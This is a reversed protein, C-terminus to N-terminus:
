GAPAAITWDYTGYRVRLRDRRERLWAADDAPLREIVFELQRRPPGFDARYLKLLRPLRVRGRRRDMETEALVYSRTAVELQAELNEPDYHRIPPCSRAGCNLAFHIRPELRSPMAATRPDRRGLPRLLSLPPRRNRRLVGHEIVDPPYGHAGVRYAATRFM